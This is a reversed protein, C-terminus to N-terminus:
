RWSPATRGRDIDALRLAATILFQRCFEFEEQNPAYGDEARFHPESQGYTRGVAPTLDIFRQYEDVNLGLALLRLGEQMARAVDQTETIERALTETPRGPLGRRSNMDPQDLIRRVQDQGLRHRSLARGFSFVSRGNPAAEDNLKEELLQEFTNALTGMASLSDGDDFYHGARRVQERVNIQPVVSALDIDDFAMGFILPTNVTLFDITDLKARQLAERGPFGASHKFGNRLDTLRRIGYLGQLSVGNACVAPDLAEGFRDPFRGRDKVTAGLHEGGTILFLEVADHFTLVASFSLPEPAAAQTLGQEYLM